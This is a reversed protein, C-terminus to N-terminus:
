IFKLDQRHPSLFQWTYIANEFVFKYCKKFENMRDLFFVRTEFHAPLPKRQLKTTLFVNSLM